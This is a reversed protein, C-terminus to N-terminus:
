RWFRTHYRYISQKKSRRNQKATGPTRSRSRDKEKTALGLVAVALALAIMFRAILILAENSLSDACLAVSIIFAFVAVELFRNM